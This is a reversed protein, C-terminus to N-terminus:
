LSTRGPQSVIVHGDEIDVSHTAAAATIPKSCPMGTRADVRGLHKPCQIQPGEATDLLEGTGLHARGHTCVGDLVCFETDSVRAVAYTRDAVDVRAVTGVRLHEAPGLDDTGDPRAWGVTLAEGAISEVAPIPRNPVVDRPDTRQARLSAFIERYAQWTSPTAPPLSGDVVKHLDPLRYYPVTPFIHHEVHFNMNLYLFRFVPNMRVTRTNARHDLVDEALGLHQTTGFFVMGWVGLTSPVVGVLLLPLPTWLTVSVLAPLVLLVLAVRAQRVVASRESMPLYDSTADDFRAFAFRAMVWVSLPGQRLGSANVIWRRITGPRGLQIEPDRGVVITDSHHRFHSWQWQTPNRLVMFSAIRYVAGNLKTSPTATGHGFEHWRADAWGGYFGFYLFFFPISWALGSAAAVVAIVGTAVLAVVYLSLDTIPRRFERRSLERLLDPDIPPVFWEGDVLGAKRARNAEPGAVTYDRDPRPGLVLEDLSM